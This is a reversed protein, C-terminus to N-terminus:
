PRRLRERHLHHRLQLRQPATDYIPLTNQNRYPTYVYMARPELTQRYARGFYSADREFFLGGDLSFTPVSLAATSRGDSLPASFSYNSTYLQLKPTIFWGPRLWPRSIQALGYSRQANPQSTLTPDAQFQTHDGELMLDFGGLNNRTYRGLFQPARDYPPTIPSTVDQLTQWKLRRFQAFYEDRAWSLTVDNPLLRQTLSSAATSTAGTTTTASGTPNVGLVWRAWAGIGTDIQGTHNIAYGLARQRAAQRQAHLQGV